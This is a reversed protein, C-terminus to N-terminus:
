VLGETLFAVMKRPCREEVAEPAPRIWGTRTSNPATTQEDRSSQMQVPSSHPSPSQVFCEVVQRMRRDISQGQLVAVLLLIINRIDPQVERRNGAILAQHSEDSFPGIRWDAIPVSSFLQGLVHTQQM